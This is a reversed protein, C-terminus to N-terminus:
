NPWEAYRPRRMPPPASSETALVLVALILVVFVLFKNKDVVPNGTDPFATEVRRRLVAVRDNPDIARAAPTTPAALAAPAARATPAAAPAAPSKALEEDIVADIEDGMVLSAKAALEKYRARLQVSLATDVYGSAFVARISDLIEMKREELTKPPPPAARRWETCMNDVYESKLCAQKLAVRHAAASKAKWATCYKDNNFMRGEVTCYTGMAYDTKAVDEVCAELGSACELTFKDTSPASDTRSM